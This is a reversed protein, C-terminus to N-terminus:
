TMMFHGLFINFGVMGVNTWTVNRLCLVEYETKNRFTSPYDCFFGLICMKRNMQYTKNLNKDTRNLSVNKKIASVLYMTDKGIGSRWYELM